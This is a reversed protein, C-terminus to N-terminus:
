NPFHMLWKGEFLLLKLDILLILIMTKKEQALPSIEIPYDMIFTPQVLKDEVKEEFILNLVKGKTDDERLEDIKLEKAVERAESDTSIKM